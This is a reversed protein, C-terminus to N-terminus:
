VAASSNGKERVQRPTVGFHRRFARSFHAQDNFGWAYAIESVSRQGARDQALDRYCNELRRIWVRRMLSLPEDVFLRHVQRVSLGVSAAIMEADLDPNRLEREVFRKVQDRKQLSRHLCDPHGPMACCVVADLLDIIANALREHALHRATPQAPGTLWHWLSQAMTFFIAPPGESLPITKCLVTNWLPLREVFEPEPVEVLLLQQTGTLVAKISQSNRLLCLEHTALVARREGQQLCATGQFQVWATIVARKDQMTQLAGASSKVAAASVRGVDAREINPFDGQEANASTPTAPGALAGFGSFLNACTIPSTPAAAAHPQLLPACSASLHAADSSLLQTDYSVPADASFTPHTSM